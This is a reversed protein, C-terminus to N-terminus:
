PSQRRSLKSGDTVYRVLEEQRGRYGTLGFVSNLLSPATESMSGARRRTLAQPLRNQPNMRPRTRDQLSSLEGTPNFANGLPSKIFDIPKVIAKDTTSSAAGANAAGGCSSSLVMVTENVAVPWALDGSPCVLPKLVWTERM